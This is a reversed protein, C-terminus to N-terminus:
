WRVLTSGTTAADATTVQVVYVGKGVGGTSV